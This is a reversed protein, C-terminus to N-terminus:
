IIKGKLAPKLRPLSKVIVIQSPDTVATAESLGAEKELARELDRCDGCLPIELELPAEEPTLVTALIVLVAPKGCLCRLRKVRKKCVESSFCNECLGDQGGLYIRSCSRCEPKIKM